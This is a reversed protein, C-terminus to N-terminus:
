CPIFFHVIFFNQNKMAMEHKRKTIQARHMIYAKIGASVLSRTAFSVVSTMSESVIIEVEGSRNPPLLKCV